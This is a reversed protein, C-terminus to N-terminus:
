AVRTHLVVTDVDAHVPLQVLLAAQYGRRYLDLKKQRSWGALFFTQMRLTLLLFIAACCFVPRKARAKREAHVRPKISSTRKLGRGSTIQTPAPPPLNPTHTPRTHVTPTSRTHYSQLPIPRRLHEEGINRHAPRVLQQTLIEPWQRTPCLARVSRRPGDEPHEM